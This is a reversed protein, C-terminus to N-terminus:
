VPSLALKGGLHTYIKRDLHNNLQHIGAVHNIAIKSVTGAVILRPITETKMFPVKNTKSGVNKGDKSNGLTM